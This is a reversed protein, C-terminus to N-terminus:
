RVGGKRGERVAPISAVVTVNLEKEIDEASKVTTDLLNIIIVYIFSAILGIVAFITIDKVHNINYPVTDTEAEDVVYVNNINYIEGVMKTFVKTTENAIDKAREPYYNTVTIMIIGKVSTVNINNKLSEETENINLNNKVQRIVNKSKVLERYTSVLKQNLILETQTITSNATDSGEKVNEAKTLVFSTYSKYKPTIFTFSYITGVIIFVLTICIIHLRKNWFIDFLKKITKFKLLM